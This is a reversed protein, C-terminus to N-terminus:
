FINFCVKFDTDIGKSKVSLANIGVLEDNSKKFCALAVKQRFVFRYFNMLAAESAKRANLFTEDKTYYKVMFRAAEEFKEEPMDKIYFEEDENTTKNKLSFSSYIQPAFYIAPREFRTVM